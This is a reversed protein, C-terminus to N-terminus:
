QKVGIQSVVDFWEQSCHLCKYADYTGTHPEPLEIKGTKVIHVQEGCWSCRTTTVSSILKRRFLNRFWKM